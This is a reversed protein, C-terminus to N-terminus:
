DNSVTGQVSMRRRTLIEPGFSSAADSQSHAVVSLRPIGAVLRLQDAVVPGTTSSVDPLPVNDLARAQQDEYDGPLAAFSMSAESHRSPSYPEVRSRRLHGVLMATTHIPGEKVSRSGVDITAV